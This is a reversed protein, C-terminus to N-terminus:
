RGRVRTLSIAGHDCGPSDYGGELRDAGAAEFAFSSATRCWYQGARRWAPSIVENVVSTQRLELRGANWAGAVARRTSSGAHDTFLITGSVEEGATCLVLLVTFRANGSSSGAWQECPAVPGPRPTPRPRPRRVTDERAPRAHPEAHTASPAVALAMATLLVSRTSASATM